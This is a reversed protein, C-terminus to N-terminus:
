RYLTKVQGWTSRTSATAEPGYFNINEFNCVANFGVNGNWNPAQMYGGAYAPCLEGWFGYEPQTENGKDFKLPGSSYSGGNYLVSYQITAPDAESLSNPNYKIEMYIPTGPVYHLGYAATFSYFPLRADFCAIEGSAANIMFKGGVMPSWWPMLMLGAEGYLSNFTVVAGFKYHSCNEFVAPTIGDESFRWVSLNTGSCQGPDASDTFSVLSPYNNIGSLNSAPCDHWVGLQTIAATPAPTNGPCTLCDAMALGSVLLGLAVIVAFALSSYGIRKM